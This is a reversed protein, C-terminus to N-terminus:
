LTWWLVLLAAISFLVTFGVARVRARRRHRVWRTMAREEWGAPPADELSRIRAFLREYPARAASEEPSRPPEGADLRDILDDPDPPTTQMNPPRRGPNFGFLEWGRLLVRRRRDGTTTGRVLGRRPARNSARALSTRGPSRRNQPARESTSRHRRAASRGQGARRVPRRAATALARVWGAFWMMVCAAALAALVTVAAIAQWGHAAVAVALEAGKANRQSARVSLRPEPHARRARADDARSRHGGVLLFFADLAVVLVLVAVLV